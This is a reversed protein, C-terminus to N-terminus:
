APGQVPMECADMRYVRGQLSRVSAAIIRRLICAHIGSPGSRERYHARFVRRGRPLAASRGWIACLPFLVSAPSNWFAIELRLHLLILHVSLRSLVTRPSGHSLPRRWRYPIAPYMDHCPRVSTIATICLPPTSLSLIHWSDGDHRWLIHFRFAGHAQLPGPPTQVM